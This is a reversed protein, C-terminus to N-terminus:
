EGCEKNLQERIVESLRMGRKDALKKYRAKDEATVRIVIVTNKQKM